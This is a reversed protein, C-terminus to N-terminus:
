AKSAQAAVAKLKDYFPQEIAIMYNRFLVDSALWVAKLAPTGNAAAGELALRWVTYGPPEPNKRNTNSERSQAAEADDDSQSIGVMSSLGYRRGYSIASGIGQPTDQQATITLTDKIWQGSSHLLMTTIKVAAGEASTGQVVSLGNEGLPTRAADWVSALTAYKSRFHPNLGDKTAGEIRLQAKALATALESIQESIDM